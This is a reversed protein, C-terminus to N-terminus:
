EIFAMVLALFTSLGWGIVTLPSNLGWLLAFVGLAPLTLLWLNLLGWLMIGSIVAATFTEISRVIRPRTTTQRKM